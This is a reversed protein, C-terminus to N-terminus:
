SVEGKYSNLHQSVLTSINKVMPIVKSYAMRTPGLIGLLGSTNGNMEYPSLVLSCEKLKENTNEHGILIQDGKNELCSDYLSSLAKSEELTTLVNQTLEINKFEPLQIMKSVGDTMINNNHFDSLKKIESYLLEIIKNYRPLEQVLDLLVEKTLAGINKGAIKESLLQSIKNLDDQNLGLDSKMIFERNVGSSNLLVVLIKDIDVLVLHAVKLTEQFITPTIVITTYNVLSSMLKSMESLVDNVNGSVKELHAVIQKPALDKSQTFETLSDVYYRYGADTPVRGSSTHKQALYGKKELSNLKNRITSPSAKMGMSSLLLSSVPEGSDIHQQITLNLIEQEKNDLIGKVM